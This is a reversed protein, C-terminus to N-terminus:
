SQGFISKPKSIWFVLKPILIRIRSIGHTGIKLCFSCIQSKQVLNPWLDTKPKFNLFCINFYSYAGELYWTHLNDFLVLLKSNKSGFKGLVSKQNSIWFVLTPILIVKMSIGHRGIKPCFSCSQSKQGLNAWFDIKPDSNWFVLTPILILMRSIGHTGIKLCFPCNQRKPGLNAWFPDQPQFKLFRSESDVGGLYWIHWNETLISLKSNKPRFKPFNGM